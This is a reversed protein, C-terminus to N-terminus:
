ESPMRCPPGALYHDLDAKLAPLVETAGDASAADVVRQQWAAAEECRDLEALAQAMLQAHRPDPRAAYVSQALVLAKEGDRVEAEPCAALLRALAFAIAGDDPIRGHGAELVSKARGYQGVRVLASAGGTVADANAPDLEAARKFHELSAWADGTAVLARAMLLHAQADFPTSELVTELHPMAQTARGQEVLTSGLNFHATLQDPDVALAREYQEIAADLDGLQGLATGLNVLARASKPDAAVAAAFEDAAEQYRGSAFALRGRVLHVREGETLLQLQDVVPDPPRVGVTGRQELHRRAAEMDGLGRYAMALSYHLKNAEPAAQLAAKFYAVAEGFDRRDLALHGLGAMASASGPSLALASKYAADADETRGLETYTEGLRVLAAFDYPQLSWAAEYRAAAEDLEGELRAVDALLHVWRFNQPALFSANVYCSEASDLLEYAHYLQGLTGYAAALRHIDATPDAIVAEMEKRAQRLQDAVVTDLGTLNPEVVPGLQSRLEPDAPESVFEDSSFGAAHNVM